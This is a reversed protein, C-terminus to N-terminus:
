FQWGDMWRIAYFAHWDGGRQVFWAQIVQDDANWRGHRVQQENQLLPMLRDLRQLGVAVQDPAIREDIVPTGFDDVLDEFGSGILDIPSLPMRGLAELQIDSWPMDAGVRLGHPQSRLENWQWLIVSLSVAVYLVCGARVINRRTWRM